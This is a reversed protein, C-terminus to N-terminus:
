TTPQRSPLCNSAQASPSDIGCEAAWQEGSGTLPEIQNACKRVWATPAPRHPPLVHARREDAARIEAETPGPALKARTCDELLRLAKAEENARDYLGNEFVLRRATLFLAGTRADLRGRRRQGM